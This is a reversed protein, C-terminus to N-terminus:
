VIANEPLHSKAAGDCIKIYPIPWEYQGPIQVITYLVGNV